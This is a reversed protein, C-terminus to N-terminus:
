RERIWVRMEGVSRNSWAYYPIMRMAAPECEPAHDLVYLDDGDDMTRFANFAIGVMGPQIDERAELVGQATRELVMRHLQPGNDAEEVCYVLPGRQIAVKGVDESVSPHAYVRRISMDFCLAVCDGDKWDREIVAFGRECKLHIPQGNLLATTNSSWNPIRLKLAYTGASVTVQVNGDFPYATKQAIHVPHGGVELETDSEMYLNVYLNQEDSAYIYSGISALLRALNPPCCACGFWAPRQPLVHAKGSDWQSKNPDVELPNVYFFSRGDLSMGALCTNYLAREMVDGYVGDPDVTFLREAAFILAISACTEAYVTDNPLDYDLTFSEGYESSGVGGTVYMRKRVANEFLAKSARMLEEDDSQAAVDIMGSLLYLARVAHGEITRQQRVPMHHQAYSKRAMSRNYTQYRHTRYKEQEADFYDPETGRVDIFFKALRYLFEEGTVRYMRMLALEIEPHGPYGPIKGEEPGLVSDINRAMRLMIDLFKRKGTAEYYAVAGEMLHGACYLEHNEQLNTWRGNPEKVTYYTNLYGDAQQGRGILDIVDDIKQELEPDPHTMLTYAAEEIWKGLDSDQFVCGYFAGTKEGAAIRFNEVCHSPAADPIEDNLAKWQFPLMEERVIKELHNWFGGKIATDKVSSRRLTKM